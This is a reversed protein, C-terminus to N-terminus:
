KLSCTSVEMKDEEKSEQFTQQPNSLPKDDPISSDDLILDHKGKHEVRDLFSSKNLDEAETAGPQERLESSRRPQLNAAHSSQLSKPSSSSRM